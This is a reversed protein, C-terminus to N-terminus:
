ALSGGPNDWEVVVLLETLRSGKNLAKVCSFFALFAMHNAFTVTLLSLTLTLHKQIFIKLKLNLLFSLLLFNDYWYLLFFCFLCFFVAKEMFGFEPACTYILTDFDTFRLIRAAILDSLRIQLFMSYLWNFNHWCTCDIVVWQIDHYCLSCLVYIRDRTDRAFPFFYYLLVICAVQPVLPSFTLLFSFSFSTLFFLRVHYRFSHTLILIQQASVVACNTM